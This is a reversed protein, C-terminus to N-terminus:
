PPSPPPPPPHKFTPWTLPPPPPSVFYKVNGAKFKPWYPLGGPGERLDAVSNIPPVIKLNVTGGYTSFYSSSKCVYKQCIDFCLKQALVNAFWCHSFTKQSSLMKHSILLVLCLEFRVLRWSQFRLCESFSYINHICSFVFALSEPFLLDKIYCLVNGSSVSVKWYVFKEEPWGGPM